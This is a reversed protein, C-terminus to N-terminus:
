DALPSRDDHENKSEQPPRAEEGIKMPQQKKVRDTPKLSATLQQDAQLLSQGAARPLAQHQGDYSLLEVDSVLNAAGHHRDPVPLPTITCVYM